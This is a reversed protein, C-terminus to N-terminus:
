HGRECNVEAVVNNRPRTRSSGSGHTFDVLEMVGDPIDSIGEPEAGGVPLDVETDSVETMDLRGVARTLIWDTMGIDHSRCSADPPQPIKHCHPAIWVSM